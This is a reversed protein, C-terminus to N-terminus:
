NGGSARAAKAPITTTLYQVISEIETKTLPGGESHAFAAMLTGPKGLSIWTRWYDADTAGALAALDPVIEARQEALHCIGCAKEFLAQGTQGTTPAVHCPICSGRFVAQRDAKAAILDKQRTSINPQAPTLPINMRVTLVQKGGSGFIDITKVFLGFRGRINVRADLSGSEGPAFVWPFRRRADIVTCDCEAEVAGITVNTAATNTVWFTFYAVNTMGPLDVKKDMADWVLPNPASAPVAASPIEARGVLTVAISAVCIQILRFLTM